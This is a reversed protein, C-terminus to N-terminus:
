RAPELWHDYVDATVTDRPGYAGNGGWVEDMDFKVLYLPMAPLGHMGYALREPNPFAGYDRVVTGTKGRLFVPTRIHGPPFALAVRVKDGAKFRCTFRVAAPSASTAQKM